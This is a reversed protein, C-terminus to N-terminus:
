FPSAEDRSGGPVGAGDLGEDGEKEYLGYHYFISNIDNKIKKMNEKLIEDVKDNQQKEIVKGLLEEREDPTMALLERKAEAILVDDTKAIHRPDRSHADLEAELKADYIYGLCYQERNELVMKKVEDQKFEDKAFMPISQWEPTGKKPRTTTDVVFEACFLKNKQPHSKDDTIIGAFSGQSLTAIRDKPLREENRYSTNVTDNAGGTTESQEMRKEHGFLGSISNVYDGTMQGFFKNGIINLFADADNKGWDRIIQAPDQAAALACLFRDRGTAVINDFGKPNMTPIEDHIIDCPIRDDKQNVQVYMESTILSIGASYVNQRKPDSGVCMITPRRRRNVALDVSNKGFVWYVIPTAMKALPTSASARIGQLQDNAKGMAAEAIDQVLVRTDEEQMLIALVKRFDACIFEIFHPFTSFEGNNYNRLFLMVAAWVKKANKSFFDDHESSYKDINKQIVEAKESADTQDRIYMKDFPNCRMSYRPDRMNVVCFYPESGYKKVYVDKNKLLVNYTYESLDPYKYDYVFMSFGKEIHQKIYELIVTFSKGSGPLGFVVNGRYPNVLNLWRDWTKDKYRYRIHFNVSDDTIVPVATGQEFTNDSSPEPAKMGRIKRGALAVATSILFFGAFSLIIYALPMRWPFFFCVLGAAGIAAIRGWSVKTTKGAKVIFILTVLAFVILKMKWRADLLGSRSFRVMMSDTALSVWGLDYFFGYAFWYVNVALMMLALTFVPLYMRDQSDQAAM